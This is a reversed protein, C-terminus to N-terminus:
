VKMRAFSFTLGSDEDLVSDYFHFGARKYMPVLRQNSTEMYIPLNMTISEQIIHNKAELLGEISKEEKRQAFLWVYLYDQDKNKKIEKSRILQNRKERRFIKPLRRIGIVFFAMYLYHLHDRFTSYRESKRYYLLYTSKNKSIFIGGFKKVMFYIYAVVVQVGKPFSTGKKPILSRMRDTHLFAGCMNEINKTDESQARFFYKSHQIVM